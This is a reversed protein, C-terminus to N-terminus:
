KRLKSIDVIRKEALQKAADYTTINEERSKQLV